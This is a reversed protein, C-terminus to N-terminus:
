MNTADDFVVVTINPKANEIFKTFVIASKEFMKRDILTQRCVLKTINYLILSSIEPDTGFTTANKLIVSFRKDLEGNLISQTAIVNTVQQLVFIANKPHTSGGASNAPIVPFSERMKDLTVTKAIPIEM